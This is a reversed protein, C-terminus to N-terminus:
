DYEKGDRKDIKITLEEIRQLLKDKEDFLIVDKEKLGEPCDECGYILGSEYFTIENITDTYLSVEGSNEHKGTASNYFTGEYIIWVKDGINYKTEIKM